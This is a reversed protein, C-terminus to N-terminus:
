IARALVRKVEAIRKEDRKYFTWQKIRKPRVLGAQALIRLHEAATPPAVGLKEAIFLSCVGDKVRDGDAQPRFHALPDKLWDLVQLRKESALARLLAALSTM